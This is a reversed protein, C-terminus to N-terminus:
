SGGGFTGCSLRVRIKSGAIGNVGRVVSAMKISTPRSISFLLSGSSGGFCRVANALHSFLNFRLTVSASM